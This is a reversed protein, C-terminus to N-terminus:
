RKRINIVATEKKNRILSLHGFVLIDIILTTTTSFLRRKKLDPKQLTPM